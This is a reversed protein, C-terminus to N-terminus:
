HYFLIIINHPNRVFTCCSTSVQPFGLVYVSVGDHVVSCCRRALRYRLHTLAKRPQSRCCWARCPARHPAGPSVTGGGAVAIGHMRVCAGHVVTHRAGVTETVVIRDYGWLVGRARGHVGELGVHWAAGASTSAGVVVLRCYPTEATWPGRSSMSSQADTTGSPM